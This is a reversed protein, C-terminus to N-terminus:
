SIKKPAFIYFVLLYTVSLSIMADAINFVTFWRLDLYDIVYGYNIRDWLNSSAGLIIFFLPLRESLPALRKYFLYGILFLIILVIFITLIPGSFPLSFAINYNPIFNFNLWGAILPRSIKPWSDIAIIKLYRDLCFFMAGLLPAIYAFIKKFDFSPM